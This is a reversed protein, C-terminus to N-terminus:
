ITLILWTNPTIMDKKCKDKIPQTEAWAVHIGNENPTLTTKTTPMGTTTYTATVTLRDTTNRLEVEESVCATM